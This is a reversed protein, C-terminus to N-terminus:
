WASGAPFPDVGRTRRREARVGRWALVGAAVTTIVAAEIWWGCLVALAVVPAATTVGLIGVIGWVLRRRTGLEPMSAIALVAVIALILILPLGILMAVAGELYAALAGVGLIGVRSAAGCGAM